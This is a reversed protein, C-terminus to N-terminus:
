NDRAYVDKLFGVGRETPTATFYTVYVPVPVPLFVTQEPQKSGATVSKGLLWKGLKAANELRICGNSFHRDQEAFLEKDPTDHLYIGNENPFMFKVRGMSNGRGPLQRLRVEQQGAAVAAWDVTAPDLERPAASWDSLVEFGMSKASRGALIKPAIKNQALDAPVNWYPNVIAYRVMGAIMPTQTQPMGVVVKMTGEQRGAQYYWLRASAADVVIHHTWAGPLLRARDLNLRLRQQDEPSLGLEEARALLKRVRVYHPSMWGMSTIYDNFSKPLAAAQLVAKPRLKKPKVEPEAYIMKVGSRRRMDSAYRGFARSLEVEARAVLHPDGSRAGEIAERLDAVKYTSPKLGDLDATELFGLLAAAEPGIEGTSAWLPWFGRSAYFDEIQGSAEARIQGALDKLDPRAMAAQPRPPAALAPAHWGAGVIVMPLLYYPIRVLRM